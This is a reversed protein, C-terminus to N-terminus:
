GAQAGAAMPLIQGSRIVMRMDRQRFTRPMERYDNSDIVLLDAAKGPDLSGCLHSLRLACAANHTLAVITEEASM